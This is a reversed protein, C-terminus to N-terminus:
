ALWLPHRHGTRDRRDRANARLKLLSWNLASVLRSLCRDLTPFHRAFATSQM